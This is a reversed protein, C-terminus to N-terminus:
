NTNGGQAECAEIYKLGIYQINLDVDSFRSRLGVNRSYQRGTYISLGPLLLPSFKGFKDVLSSFASAM